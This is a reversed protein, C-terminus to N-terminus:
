YGAAATLLLPHQPITGGRKIHLMSVIGISFLFQWSLPNLFWYGEILMNHPAVEYIGAILWVTGSVGLALWTSRANLFLIIVVKMVSASKMQPAQS